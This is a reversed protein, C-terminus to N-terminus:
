IPGSFALIVDVQYFKISITLIFNSKFEDVIKESSIQAHAPWYVSTIEGYQM